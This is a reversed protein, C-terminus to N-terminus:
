RDDYSELITEAREGIPILYPQQEGEEAVTRVLSKGLNLIKASDSSGKSKLAALTEENIKVLPLTTTLGYSEVRERVLFETKKALDKYLAVQKSFANHVIQHLTSLMGYDDLYKRLFVDPSIIEYLTELEKYFRYFTEHRENDACADIVWDM